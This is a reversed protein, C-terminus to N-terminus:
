KKRLAFTIPGNSTQIVDIKAYDNDSPPIKDTEYVGIGVGCGMDASSLM